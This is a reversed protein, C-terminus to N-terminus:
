FLDNKILTPLLHKTVMKKWEKTDMNYSLLSVLSSLNDDIVSRLKLVHTLLIRNLVIKQILNNKLFLNKDQLTVLKSLRAHAEPDCEKATSLVEGLLNGMGKDKRYLEKGSNFLKEQLEVYDANSKVQKM